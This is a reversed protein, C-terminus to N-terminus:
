WDETQKSMQKKLSGITPNVNTIVEQIWKENKVDIPKKLFEGIDSLDFNDIIDKIEYKYRNDKVQISMNVDYWQDPKGYYDLGHIIRTKLTILGLDKDKTQIVTKPDNFTSSIWLLADQFLADKSKGDVQVVETIVLEGGEVKYNDGAKCFFATFCVSLLFLVKKM